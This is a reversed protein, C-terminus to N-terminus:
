HWECKGPVRQRSFRQGYRAGSLRLLRKGGPENERHHPFHKRYQSYAHPVFQLRRNHFGAPRSSTSATQQAPQPPALLRAFAAFNVIDSSFGSPLMASEPTMNTEDEALANIMCGPTEDRENGFLENTVGIEVNYAEGAFMLMSKNQAKWGFRTVTGDNGSLNAHGSIGLAAKNPNAANAL